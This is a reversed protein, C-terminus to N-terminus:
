LLNCGIKKFFVLKKFCKMYAARLTKDGLGYIVPNLSCSGLFYLMLIWVVHYNAVLKQGLLLQLWKISRAPLVAAFFQVVIVICTFLTRYNRELATNTATTHDGTSVGSHFLQKIRNNHYLLSRCMKTYLVALLIFPPIIVISQWTREYIKFYLNQYWRSRCHIAKLEVSVFVPLYLIFVVIYVGAVIYNLAKKRLKPHLPQTVAKYRLIAIIVLFTTECALICESLPFTVKCIIKLLTTYTSVSINQHIILMPNLMLSASLLLAIDCAAVHLVLFYYNTKLRRSKCIAFIVLINGFLGLLAIIIYGLSIGPQAPISITYDTTNYM